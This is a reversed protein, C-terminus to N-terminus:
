SSSQSRALGQDTIPLLPAIERLVDRQVRDIAASRPSAALRMGEIASTMTM